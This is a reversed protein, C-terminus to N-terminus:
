QRRLHLAYPRTLLHLTTPTAALLMPLICTTPTTRMAGSQKAPLYNLWLSFLVDTPITPIAPIAGRPQHRLQKSIASSGGMSLAGGWAGGGAGGKGWLDTQLHSFQQGDLTGVEM